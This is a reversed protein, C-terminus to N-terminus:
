SFTYFIQLNKDSRKADVSIFGEIITMLRSLCIGPECQTAIEKESEPYASYKSEYPRGGYLSSIGYRCCWEIEQVNLWRVVPNLM